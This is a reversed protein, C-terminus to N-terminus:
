IIRYGASMSEENSRKSANFDVWKIFDKGTQSVQLEQVRNEYWVIGAALTLAMLILCTM